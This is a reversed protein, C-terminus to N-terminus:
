QQSFQLHLNCRAYCGSSLLLEQKQKSLQESGGFKFPRRPRKGELGLLGCSDEGGEGGTLKDTSQDPSMHVGVGRHAVEVVGSHTISWENIIKSMVKPNLLLFTLIRMHSIHKRHWDSWGINPIIM